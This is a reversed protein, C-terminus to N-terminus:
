FLAWTGPRVKPAPEERGLSGVEAKPVCGCTGTSISPVNWTERKSVLIGSQTVPEWTVRGWGALLTVGAAGSSHMGIVVGVAPCHSETM